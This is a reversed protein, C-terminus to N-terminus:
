DQKNREKEFYQVDFQDVFNACIKDIDSASSTSSVSSKLLIYATENKSTRIRRTLLSNMFFGVLKDGSKLTAYQVTISFTSSDTTDSVIVINSKNGLDIRIDNQIKNTLKEDTGHVTLKVTIDHRVPPHSFSMILLLILTNRTLTRM